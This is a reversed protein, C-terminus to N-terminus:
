PKGEFLHADIRQVLEDNATTWEALVRFEAPLPDVRGEYRGATDPALELPVDQLHEGAASVLRFRPGRISPDLWVTLRPGALTATGLRSQTRAQVSVFYAGTGLLRLIWQGTRPHPIAAIRGARFWRDEGGLAAPDVSTRQPDYLYMTQMCQLSAVVFLSEVSSDVPIPIDVFSDIRGAARVVTEKHKMDGTVMASMGDVESKDFLFLHGGTAEAIKAYTPDFSREKGTCPWGAQHNPQQHNVQACALARFVILFGLIRMNLWRGAFGFAAPLERFSNVPVIM